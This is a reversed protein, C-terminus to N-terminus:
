RSTAPARTERPAAASQYKTTTPNNPPHRAGGGTPPPLGGDGCLRGDDWERIIFSEAIFGLAARLRSGGAFEGVIIEGVVIGEVIRGLPVRGFRKSASQRIERRASIASHAAM